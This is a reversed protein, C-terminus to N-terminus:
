QRTYFNALDLTTPRDEPTMIPSPDVRTIGSNYLIDGEVAVIDYQTPVNTGSAVVVGDQKLEWSNITTDVEYARKGSVIISGSLYYSTQNTKVLGTTSACGPDSYFDVIDNGHGAGSFVTTIIIYVGSGVDMCVSKWTGIVLSEISSGTGSTGIPEPTAPQPTNTPELYATPDAASPRPESTEPAAIEAASEEQTPTSATGGCALVMVILLILAILPMPTKKLSRM